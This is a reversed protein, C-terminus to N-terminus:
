SKSIPLKYQYICDSLGVKPFLLKFGQKEYLARAALNTIKTTLVITKFGKQYMDKLAHTLLQTGIKHGRYKEDVNLFEIIGTYDDDTNFSIQYTIFGAIEHNKVFVYTVYETNSFYNLSKQLQTELNSDIVWLDPNSSLMHALISYDTNKYLRIEDSKVSNLLFIFLLYFISKKM